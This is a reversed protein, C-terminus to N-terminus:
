AKLKLRAFAAELVPAGDIYGTALYGNKGETAYKELLIQILINSVQVLWYKDLQGYAVVYSGGTMAAPAFESENVPAGLLMDPSGAIISPKWIYQGDTGKLSLAALRTNTGMIWEAKARYAARVKSQVKLFDDATFSGSVSSTVDRSATIGGNATGVTFIGMPQGNAGTGNCIANEITASFKEVLKQEVLKDAPLANTALLMKSVKALKMLPHPTLTRTSLKLDSESALTEPIESTWDFEEMDADEYPYGISSANKLPMHTVKSLLPTAKAVESVLQNIFKQPALAGGSSPDLTLDRTDGSQLYRRFARTEKDDNTEDLGRDEDGKAAPVPPPTLGDLHQEREEQSVTAGIANVEDFMARYKSNEESTFSRVKGDEGKVADNMARMKAILGVRKEKLKVINTPM